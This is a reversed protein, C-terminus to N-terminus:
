EMLSVEADRPREDFTVLNTDKIHLTRHPWAFFAEALDNNMNDVIIKTTSPLPHSKLFENVEALREEITTPRKSDTFGLPWVDDTHAESTFVM